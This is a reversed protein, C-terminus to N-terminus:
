IIKQKFYNEPYRVHIPVSETRMSGYEYYACEDYESMVPGLVHVKHSHTFANDRTRVRCIGVRPATFDRSEERMDPSTQCTLQPLLNTCLYTGIRM